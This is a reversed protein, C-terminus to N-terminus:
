NQEKYRKWVDIIEQRKMEVFELYPISYDRIDNVKCSLLVIKIPEKQLQCTVVVIHTSYLDYEKDQPGYARSIHIVKDLDLYSGDTCEYIPHIKPYWIEETMEEM